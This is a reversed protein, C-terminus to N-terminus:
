IGVLTAVRGIRKKLDSEMGGNGSLRMMQPKVPIVAM